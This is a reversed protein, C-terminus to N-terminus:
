ATLLGALAVAAGILSSYAGIKLSKRRDARHAEADPVDTTNGVAEFNFVGRTGFGACFRLAAQLFGSASAAAPLFLTLRWAAPVRFAIFAVWLVAAVGLGIWGARRRAAIESPGINCVGAIYGDM